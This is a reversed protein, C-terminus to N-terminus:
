DRPGPPLARLRSQDRPPASVLGELYRTLEDLMVARGQERLLHEGSKSRLNGNAEDIWAKCLQKLMLGEPARGLRALYELQQPTLQM